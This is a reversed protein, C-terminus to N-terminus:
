VPKVPEKKESLYRPLMLLQWLNGAYLPLIIFWILANDYTKFAYYAGLTTAVVLFFVSPVAAATNTMKVKLWAGALAFALIILTWDLFPLFSMDSEPYNIYRLYALDIAALLILLIQIAQWLWKGLIQMAMNHIFQYSFFLTLSIAGFLLGLVLLYWGGTASEGFGFFTFINGSRLFLAILYTTVVAVLLTSGSFRLWSSFKM